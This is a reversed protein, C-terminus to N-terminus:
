GYVLVSIVYLLILTSGEWIPFISAIGFTVSYGGRGCYNDRSDLCRIRDLVQPMGLGKFIKVM